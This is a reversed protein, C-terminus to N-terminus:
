LQHLALAVQRSLLLPSALFHLKAALNVKKVKPDYAVFVLVFGRIM